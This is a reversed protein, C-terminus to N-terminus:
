GPPEQEEPQDLIRRPRANRADVESRPILAVLPSEAGGRDFDCGSRDDGSAPEVAGGRQSPPDDRRRPAGRKGSRELSDARAHQRTDATSCTDSEFTLECSRRAWSRRAWRRKRCTA